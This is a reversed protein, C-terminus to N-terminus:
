SEYYCREVGLRQAQTKEKRKLMVEGRPLRHLQRWLFGTHVWKRLSEDCGSDPEMAGWKKCDDWM